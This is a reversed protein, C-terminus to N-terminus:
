ESGAKPVTLATGAAILLCLAALAIALETRGTFLYEVMVGLLSAAVLQPLVLFINHIGMYVGRKAPPLADALIAYPLSLIAAWAIGIGIAPLWLLGGHPVLMLGALGAAGALLCLAYGNRRGIRGAL